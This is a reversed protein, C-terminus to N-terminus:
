SPDTIVRTYHWSHHSGQEVTRTCVQLISVPNAPKPGFTSAREPQWEADLGVIAPLAQASAAAAAVNLLRRMEDLTELSDVLLIHAADLTMVEGETETEAATAEEVV